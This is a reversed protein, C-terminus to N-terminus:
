KIKEITYNGKYFDVSSLCKIYENTNLKIYETPLESKKNIFIIENCDGIKDKIKQKDDDNLNTSIYFQAHTRNNKKCWLIIDDINNSHVYLPTIIYYFSIDDLYNFDNVLATILGIWFESAWAYYRNTDEYKKIITYDGLLYDLFGFYINCVKIFKDWPLIFSIKWAVDVRTNSDYFIKYLKYDDFINLQKLYEYLTNLKYWDYVVKKMSKRSYNLCCLCLYNNSQLNDFVYDTLNVFFRRYHCFGIYKSYLNNKWVYYLTCVECLYKNLYNINDGKVFLDSTNFLKVYNPVYDLNYELVLKPDHYSCYITLDEEKIM